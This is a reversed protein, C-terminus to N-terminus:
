WAEARTLIERVWFRPKSRTARYNRKKKRRRCLTLTLIGQTVNLTTEILIKVPNLRILLKPKISKIM